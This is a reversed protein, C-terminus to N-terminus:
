IGNRQAYKKMFHRRKAEKIVENLDKGQLRKPIKVSGALEEVLRVAPTILLRGNEESISVKEGPKLSLKRVFKAPLTLQNKSTITGFQNM